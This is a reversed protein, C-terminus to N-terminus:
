GGQKEYKDLTAFIEGAIKPNDEIIREIRVRSKEVTNTNFAIAERLRQRRVNLTHRIETMEKPNVIADVQSPWVSSDYLKVKDLEGILGEVAKFTNDSNIHFAEREKKYNLYQRWMDNLEYSSKVGNSEYEYELRSKVNVYLLKYKNMLGIAKNIKKETIKLEVTCKQNSVILAAAMSLAVIVVVYIGILFDKRLSFQLYILIMIIIAFTILGIKALKRILNLKKTADRKEYKLAVKEGEIHHMDTKLRQCEQEDDYMDKLIDQIEDEHRQMYIFKSEAMKTSAQKMSKKDERLTILRRAYYEVNGRVPEELNEITNIDNLYANVVDYEKRASDIRKSCIAIQECIREINSKKEDFTNDQKDEIIGQRIIERDLPAYEQAVPLEEKNSDAKIKEYLNEGDFIIDDERNKKFIKSFFGM